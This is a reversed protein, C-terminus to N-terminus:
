GFVIGTLLSIFGTINALQRLHFVSLWKDRYAMWNQPYNESTWTNILTNIPLNGKIMIIADIWFAVYSITTTIFLVTGSNKGTLYIAVPGIILAAYFVWKFKARFNKDTLKRFEIYSLVSLNKQVNELSIIYSFSQSVIFSYVLLNLFLIVQTAM